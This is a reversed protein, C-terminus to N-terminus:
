LLCNGFIRRSRRGVNRGILYGRGRPVIDDMVGDLQLADSSDTGDEGTESETDSDSSHGFGNMGNIHGNPVPPSPPPSDSEADYNEEPRLCM